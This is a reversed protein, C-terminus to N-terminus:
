KGADALRRGTMKRHEDEIKLGHEAEVLLYADRGDGLGGEVVEYYNGRYRLRRGLRYPFRYTEGIEGEVKPLHQFPLAGDEEFSVWLTDGDVKTVLGPTGAPLEIVEELQGKVARYTHESTVGHESTDEVRRLVIDKNVYFQLRTLEQAGLKGPQRYAHLFAVRSTTCASAGLALLAAVIIHTRRNM